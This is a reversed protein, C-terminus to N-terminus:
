YECRMVTNGSVPRNNKLNPNVYGPLAGVPTLWKFTARVTVRVTTVPSTCAISAPASPLTVPASWDTALCTSNTTSCTEITITAPGGASLSVASAAADTAANYVELNTKKVVAVRAGERSASKVSQQVFLLRGFDIIGMILLLLLVVVIAFEVAAAGNSSRLARRRTRWHNM